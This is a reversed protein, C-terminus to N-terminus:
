LRNVDGRNIGTGVCDTKGDDAGVGRDVEFGEVVFAICQTEAFTNENAM